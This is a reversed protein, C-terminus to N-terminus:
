RAICRISYGYNKGYSLETNVSSSGIFMGFGVEDALATSSWYYGSGENLWSGSINAFFTFNPEGQMSESSPYYSYLKNFDADQSYGGTPLRWGKPCISSPANGSSVTSGGTGATATYFTYLNGKTQDSSAYLKNVDTGSFGSTSHTPLVYDSTVDSNESTLTIPDSGGLALNQTMWCKGDKLARVTYTKGDRPDTLTGNSVYAANACPSIYGPETPTTGDSPNGDVGNVYATFKVTDTYTGSAINGVKAGFDVSTRDYSGSIVGTTRKLAAPNGLTPILYYDTSNLSFGWTNNDMQASTKAGSFTSTLKDQISSNAHALSSENDSDELTLTYGYQSNTTVDVDISGHTFDGVSAELALSNASTSISLASSVTLNIEAEQSEAAHSGFTPSYLYVASATVLLSSAFVGLMTTKNIHLNKM